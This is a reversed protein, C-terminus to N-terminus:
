PNASTYAEAHSYDIDYGFDEPIGLTIKSLVTGHCMLENRMMPIKTGDPLEWPGEILNFDADFGVTFVHGGDNSIPLFGINNNFVEQYKKLAVSQTYKWGVNGKSGEPATEIWNRVTNAPVQTTLPYPASVVVDNEKVLRFMSGIGLVHGMEHLVNAQFEVEDDWQSSFM